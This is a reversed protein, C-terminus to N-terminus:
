TTEDYAKLAGYNPGCEAEGDIRTNWDVGFFSRIYAPLSSITSLCLRNLKPLESEVVDFVLSDHVTLILQSKFQNLTLGRRIIVAMLPLIDGGAIGQVPYNKVQRENYTMMGDKYTNKKLAFWRGTPITLRGGQMVKSINSQQWRALGKYKEFFAQVIRDWKGKTFDPM